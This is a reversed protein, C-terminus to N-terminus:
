GTHARQSRKVVDVIAGMLIAIAAVTWLTTEIYNFVEYVASGRQIILFERLIGFVSTFSAIIFLLPILIAMCKLGKKTMEPIGRLIWYVLCSIMAVFTMIYGVLTWTM